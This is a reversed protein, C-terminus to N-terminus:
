DCKEQTCMGAIRGRNYAYDEWGEFVPIFDSTTRDCEEGKGNTYIYDSVYGQSWDARITVTDGKDRGDTLVQRIHGLDAADVWGVEGQRTRVLWNQGYSSKKIALLKLSDGANLMTTLTDEGFVKRLVAQNELCIEPGDTKLDYRAGDWIAVASAAVTLLLYIFCRRSPNETRLLLKKLGM